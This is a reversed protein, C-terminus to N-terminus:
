KVGLEYLSDMLEKSSNELEFWESGSRLDMLIEEIQWLDLTIQAQGHQVRVDM